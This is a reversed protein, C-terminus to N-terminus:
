LIRYCLLVSIVEGEGSYSDTMELWYGIDITQDGAITDPIMYESSGDNEPITHSFQSRDQLRREQTVVHSNAGGHYNSTEKEISRSTTVTRDNTSSGAEHWSGEAGSVPSALHLYDYSSNSQDVTQM